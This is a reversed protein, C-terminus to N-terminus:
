HKSHTNRRRTSRGLGALGIAMLALTTPEPVIAPSPSPLVGFVADVAHNGLMGIYLDNLSEPTTQSAEYRLLYVGVSGVGGTWPPNDFVFRDVAEPLLAQTMDVLLGDARLAPSPSNNFYKFFDFRDPSSDAIVIARVRSDFPVPLDISTIPGSGFTITMGANIRLNSAYSGDPVGLASPIDNLSSNFRYVEDAWLGYFPTASAEAVSGLSVLLAGVIKALKM